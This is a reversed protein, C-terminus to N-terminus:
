EEASGTGNGSVGKHNGSVSAPDRVPPVLNAFNPIMDTLPVAHLADRVAENIRQWNARVPCSRQINCDPGEDDLCETIAIPGEIAHIIEGVQIRDPDRALSYGGKVGRHSLLLDARALGKLIKSVTPLPLCAIEALDRANHIGRAKDAAFWTMLLIGYDTQKTIRLM